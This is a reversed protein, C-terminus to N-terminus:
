KREQNAPEGRSQVLRLEWISPRQAVWHSSFTRIQEVLQSSIWDVPVRHMIGYASFSRGDFFVQDLRCYCGYGDGRKSAYYEGMNFIRLRVTAEVGFRQSFPNQYQVSVIRLLSPSLLVYSITPLSLFVCSVSPGGRSRLFRLNGAPFLALHLKTVLLPRLISFCLYPGRRVLRWWRTEVALFRLRHTRIRPNSSLPGSSDFVRDAPRNTELAIGAQRYRFGFDVAAMRWAPSLPGRVLGLRYRSTIETICTSLTVM